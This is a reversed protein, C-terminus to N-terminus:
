NIASMVELSREKTKVAGNGVPMRVYELHVELRGSLAFKANGQIVKALVGWVVYAKLQDRRRLGIGVM